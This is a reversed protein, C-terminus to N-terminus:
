EIDITKIVSLVVPRHYSLPSNIYAEITFDIGAKDKTYARTLIQSGDKQLLFCGAITRDALEVNTTESCGGIPNKGAGFTIAVYGNPGTFKTTSSGGTATTQNVVWGAPLIITYKGQPQKYTKPGEPSSTPSLTPSPLVSPSIKPLPSFLKQDVDSVDRNAEDIVQPSKIPKSTPAKSEKGLFEFVRIKGKNAVVFGGGSAVLIIAAVLIVLIPAFGKFM